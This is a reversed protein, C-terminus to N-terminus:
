RRPENLSRAVSSLSSSPLMRYPKNLKKCIKKVSLCANHSNVDVPCLVLDCRNIKGELSQEGDRLYGDHYEFDCGRKDALERYRASMKTIGGVMLIRKACCEYSPCDPSCSQEIQPRLKLKLKQNLEMQENLQNKLNNYQSKYCRLENIVQKQREIKQSSVQPQAAPQAKQQLRRNEAQSQKLSAKLQDIEQQLKNRKDSERLLRASLRRCELQLNDLQRQGSRRTAAKYHSLMHVDGFFKSALCDPLDRRALVAWYAGCIDERELHERWFEKLEDITLEATQRMIKTYKVKLMRNVRLSISSRMSCSSVIIGHTEYAGTKKIHEKQLIMKQEELSLCTGVISCHFDSSIEWIDRFITDSTM